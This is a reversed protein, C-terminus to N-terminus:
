IIPIVVVGEGPFTGAPSVTSLPDYWFALDGVMYNLGSGSIDTYGSPAALNLFSVGQHVWGAAIAATGTVQPTVGLTEDAALTGFGNAGRISALVCVAGFPGGPETINVVVPSSSGDAVGTWVGADVTGAGNPKTATYIRTLRSDSISLAATGENGSASTGGRVVMVLLDGAITGAPIAATLTHAGTDYAGPQTYGIVVPEIPNPDDLLYAYEFTFVDGSALGDFAPITINQDARSWDATTLHIGGGGAPHWTVHESGDIPLYTLRTSVTGSGSTVKRDTNLFGIAEGPSDDEADGYLASAGLPRAPSFRGGVFGVGLQKANTKLQRILDGADRTDRRRPPLPSPETM